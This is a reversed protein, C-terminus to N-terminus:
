VRKLFGFSEKVDLFINYPYKNLHFFSFFNCFNDYIASTGSGAHSNVLM